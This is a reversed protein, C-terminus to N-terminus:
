ATIWKLCVRRMLRSKAIAVELQCCGQCVLTLKIFGDVVKPLAKSNLSIIGFCVIVQSKGQRLLALDRLRDGCVSLRHPQLRVKGLGVM